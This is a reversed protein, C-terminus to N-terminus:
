ELELQEDNQTVKIKIQQYRRKEPNLSSDIVEQAFKQDRMLHAYARYGIYIKQPSKDKAKKFAKIMKDLHNVNLDSM